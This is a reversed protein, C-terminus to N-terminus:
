DFIEKLTKLLEKDNKDYNLKIGTNSVYNIQEFAYETSVVKKYMGTYGPVERYGESYLRTENVKTVIVAMLLLDVIIIGVKKM